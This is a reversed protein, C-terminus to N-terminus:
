ISQYYHSINISFSCSFCYSINYVNTCTSTGIKFVCFHDNDMQNITYNVLIVVSDTREKPQNQYVLYDWKEIQASEWMYDQNQKPSNVMEKVSYLSTLRIPSGSYGGYKGTIDFYFKKLNEKAKPGCFMVEVNEWNESTDSYHM